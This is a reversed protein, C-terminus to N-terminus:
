ATLPRGPRVPLSRPVAHGGGPRHRRIGHLRQGVRHPSRAAGPHPGPDPFVGSGHAVVTRDPRRPRGHGGHVRPGPCHRLSLRHPPHRAGKALRPRHRCLSRGPSDPGAPAMLTGILARPAVGFGVCLVALGGFAVAMGAPLRENREYPQRRRRLFGLWMARALAAFTLVEGVSVAVFPVMLHSHLLSEHILERSAYGNLPPIGAIAAVGLAFALTVAPKRRLLGGMRSLNSEGTTHIVAAACLFLLSKFLAHNVLHYAAGTVGEISGSALAVALLGMQSVTDFALLRKLDDQALALAAGGVVSIVGVVMLLGLAHGERGPEFVQFLLRGVALVGLNVMLGSFLASVSGPAATHADPLWAHFPMWGAKTGFGAFLLALAALDTRTVGQGHIANHLQALNLAGHDQYLLSAGVFVAFGALATLVLIKFAAELALPRELFYGTLAYSALAAVEFWVFLNILDGTLASGILAADLLLFLCAFGGIERRGLAAMESLAFTLILAGIAAASLAFLLGFPDAAFGIGLVQGESPGAHSMFHVLVRGGFVSPAMALLIATSVLLAALSVALALHGSRRGILPAAV